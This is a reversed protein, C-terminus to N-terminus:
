GHGAADGTKQDEILPCYFIGKQGPRGSTMQGPCCTPWIDPPHQDVIKAFASIQPAIADVLQEPFQTFRVVNSEPTGAVLLTTDRPAQAM